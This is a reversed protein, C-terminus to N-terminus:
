PLAYILTEDNYAIKERRKKYVLMKSAGDLEIIEMKSSDPVKLISEGSETIINLTFIASAMGAAPEEMNEPLVYEVCSYVIELEDDQNFVHRSILKIEHLLHDKSLPLKVTKWISNDLNFISLMKEKPNYQIYKYNGDDIRVSKYQSSVFGEYKIQALLTVPLFLVGALMFGFLKM